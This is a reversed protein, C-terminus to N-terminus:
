VLDSYIQLIRLFRRSFTQHLLRPGIRTLLLALCVSFISFKGLSTSQEQIRVFYSTNALRSFLARCFLARSSFGSIFHKRMEPRWLKVEPRLLSSFKDFLLFFIDLIKKLITRFPLSQTVLPNIRGSIKCNRWFVLM